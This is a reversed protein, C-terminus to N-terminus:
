ALVFKAAGNASLVVLHFAASSSFAPLSHLLRPDYTPLVGFPAPAKQPELHLEM